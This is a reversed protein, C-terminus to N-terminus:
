LQVPKKAKPKPPTPPPTAEILKTLEAAMKGNQKELTPLIKRAEDLKGLKQYAVGLSLWAEPFEKQFEVAKKYAEAAKGNQGASEYAFGLNYWAHAYDKKLAVAKQLTSIASKWRGLRGYAAGLDNWYTANGPEDKIKQELEVIEPTPATDAARVGAAILLIACFLHFGRM